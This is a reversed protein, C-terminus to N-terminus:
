PCVSAPVVNFEVTQVKRDNVMVDIQWRGAPDGSDFHFDAVFRGRVTESVTRVETGDSRIEANKFTVNGPAPLHFVTAFRYAGGDGPVIEYGFRYGTSKDCFKISRTPSIALNGESGRVDGFRILYDAARAPAGMWMVALSLASWVLCQAGRM